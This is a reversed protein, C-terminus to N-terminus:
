QRGGGGRNGGGGGQGGGRNGGGQGGSRNGSGGQGGGNFGQGGGRNGGGQGGGNFGQGEGGGGQGGGNFGQGGGQGGRNGGGGGGQRANNNQRRNGGGGDTSVDSRPLGGGGGFRSYRSVAATRRLWVERTGDQWEVTMQVALPILLIDTQDDQAAEPDYEEWDEDWIIEEDNLSAYLFSISIINDALVERKMEYTGEEQWPFRPLTHYEAVLQQKENVKLRIFLYASNDGEAARRRATFFMEERSGMFVVQEEDDENKWSFPIMNRVCTDMIRDINQRVKLRDTVRVSRRWANYFAASATGIILAVFIMIAMAAVLEVLTFCRIRNNPRLHMRM